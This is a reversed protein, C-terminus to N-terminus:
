CAIKHMNESFSLVLNNNGNLKIFTKGDTLSTLCNEIQLYLIGYLIPYICFSLSLSILLHGVIAQCASIQDKLM